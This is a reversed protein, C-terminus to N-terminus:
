QEPVVPGSKRLAKSLKIAALEGFLREVLDLFNDRMRDAPAVAHTMEEAFRECFVEYEFPDVTHMEALQQM